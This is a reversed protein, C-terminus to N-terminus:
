PRYLVSGHVLHFIHGIFGGIFGFFVGGAFETGGRTLSGSGGGAGLAVGVATGIVAGVFASGVPHEFRVERIETRNFVFADRLFLHPGFPECVLQEETASMMVCHYRHGRVVSVATGPNLNMVADWRGAQASASCSAFALLLAFLTRMLRISLAPGARKNPTKHCKKLQEM